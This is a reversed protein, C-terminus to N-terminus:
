ISIVNKIRIEDTSYGFFIISNNVNVLFKLMINEAIGALDLNGTIGPGVASNFFHKRLCNVNIETHHFANRRQDILLWAGFM